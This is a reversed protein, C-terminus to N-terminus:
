KNTFTKTVEQDSLKRFQPGTMATGGATFIGCDKAIKTATKIDACCLFINKRLIVECYHSSSCTSDGTVVRVIIGASQCSRVAGPVEKRIPDKSKIQTKPYRM